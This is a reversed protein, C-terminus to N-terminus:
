STWSFQHPMVVSNWEIRGNEDEIVYKQLVSLSRKRLKTGNNGQAAKTKTLSAAAFAFSSDLNASKVLLKLFIEPVEHSPATLKAAVTDALKQLREIRVKPTLVVVVAHDPLVLTQM